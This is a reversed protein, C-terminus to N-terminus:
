YRIVKRLLYIGCAILLVNGAWISWCPLRGDKAGDASVMLMPYYILLIPLFCLFFSTLMDRNRLRIALPGGVWVFCLCSFGYSWRRHPEAYLRHLREEDRELRHARTQWEKSALADIDGRLMQCVARAALNKERRDILSKQKVKEGPIARLPLHSPLHSLEGTQSAEQLPIIMPESEGPFHLSDDPGFNASGRRFVIKLVAEGQDITKGLEAEAASVTIPSKGGNAKFSVTPGILKRGQVDKVSIALSGTSYTRQTALTRYAIQEVSDVLVHRVQNRGWSDAVDNLFVTALSAFFALFWIPELIRRPSIGQSKMALVENSGALRAYVSTTALLLTGPMAAWLAIPLFCPILRLIGEPPMGRRMAERGVIFILIILTLVTLSLLFWKLLEILIYRTLIKM